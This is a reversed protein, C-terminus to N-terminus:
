RGAKYRTDAMAQLSALDRGLLGVKRDAEAGMRQLHLDAALKAFEETEGDYIARVLRTCEAAVVTLELIADDTVEQLTLDFGM